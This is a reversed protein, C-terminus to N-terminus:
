GEKDKLWWWKPSRSGIRVVKHSASFSKYSLHKIAHVQGEGFDCVHANTISLSAQNAATWPTEFLQVHSLSQVLRGGSGRQLLNESSDSTSDGLSCAEDQEM